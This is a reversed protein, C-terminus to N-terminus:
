KHTAFSIDPHSYRFAYFSFNEDSWILSNLLTSQVRNHREIRRNRSRVPMIKLLMGSGM